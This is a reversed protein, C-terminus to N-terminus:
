AVGQKNWYRLSMLWGLYARHEITVKSDCLKKPKKIVVPNMSKPSISVLGAYDPLEKLVIDAIDSPVAFVFYNPRISPENSFCRFWTGNRFYNHKQWKKGRSANIESRFDSLSVKIEFEYVLGSPKVVLLDSEFYTAYTNPIIFDKSPNILPRHMGAWSRRALAYAVQDANM